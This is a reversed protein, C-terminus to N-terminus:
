TKDKCLMQLLDLRQRQWCGVRSELGEWAKEGIWTSIKTERLDQNVTYAYSLILVDLENLLNLIFFYTIKPRYKKDRCESM